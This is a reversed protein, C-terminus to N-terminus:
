SKKTNGAAGNAKRNEYLLDAEKSNMTPVDYSSDFSGSRSGSGSGYGTSSSEVSPEPSKEKGVMIDDQVALLNKIGDYDLDKM